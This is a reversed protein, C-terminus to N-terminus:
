YLGRCQRNTCVVVSGTLVSWSVAQLYPGRCQRNTCVVVSGPVGVASMMKVPLYETM